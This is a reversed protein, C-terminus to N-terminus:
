GSPRRARSTCTPRQDGARRPRPHRPVVECRAESSRRREAFARGRRRRSTMQWTRLRSWTAPPPHTQHNPGNSFGEAGANETCASIRASQQYEASDVPHVLRRTSGLPNRSLSNEARDLPFPPVLPLRPSSRAPTLRPSPPRLVDTVHPYRRPYRQSLGFSDDSDVDRDRDSPSEM